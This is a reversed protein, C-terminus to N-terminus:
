GRRTAHGFFCNFGDHRGTIVAQYGQFGVLGRQKLVEGLGIECLWGLVPVVGVLDTAM